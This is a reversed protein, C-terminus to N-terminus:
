ANSRDSDRLELSSHRAYALAETLEERSLHAAHPIGTGPDILNGNKIETLPNSPKDLEALPRIARGSVVLQHMALVDIMDDNELGCDALENNFGEIQDFLMSWPRRNRLYLPLKILGHDLRLTLANAIRDPKSITGPNLKRVGPLTELNMTDKARTLVVSRLADYLTKSERVVEPALLRCRWRDAMQFAATVLVPERARAAWADLAFLENFEGFHAMLMCAKYDSTSESTYSTDLTIFLSCRKLFDCLTMTIPTGARTFHILTKSEFPRSMFLEDVKSYTYGHKDETLAPFAGGESAGPKCLYEGPFAERMEERLEELSDKELFSPDERALELREARSSPWMDTWVSKLDGTKPDEYGAPIILRAWYEFRDDVAEHLGTVPNPQTKMAHWLYHRPSVFTGIWDVGAGGRAVMPRIVKFLLQAMFSKRVEASTSAHFDYEPDDLVYRRARGGRQRAEASISRHWSGNNLQFREIGSSSEGRAPRIRGEFEIEPSFDDQIRRNTFCQGRVIEACSMANDHTSTAYMISYAPRSIMRLLNAKRVLTSKAYGRACVIANRRYRGFNWLILSHGEPSPLPTDDYFLPDFDDEHDPILYHQDFFNVAAAFISARYALVSNQQDTSLSPVDPYLYTAIDRFDITWMKCANVRAIRRGDETLDFYDPPLPWFDNGQEPSPLLKPIM